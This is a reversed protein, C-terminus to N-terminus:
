QRMAGLRNRALDYVALTREVMRDLTYEALVRDRGARGIRRRADGDVLLRHAAAVIADVDGPPVVVGNEGPRDIVETIGGVASAVVPVGCAMAQPLVLPAAEERETPFLFVDAAAMYAAVREVAQRGVFDVRDSTGLKAALGELATREEGDGVVVLRADGDRVRALAEVAHHFGKERNLRGVALLLPGEALGLEARVEVAPRPRFLDVDVGNPVVHLRKPDLFFSRRTGDLQQRSPVMAECLRFRIVADPPVFHHGSIWVLHKAETLREAGTNARRLRALAASALGLYNGHFKVAVPTRRHIGGRLLGLASTSESHVVDFRHRAELRAFAARSARLWAHHRMPTRHYRTRVPLFHWRAGAFEESEVGEPHRATLVEVEHGLRALGRVLDVTHAQMGGFGHVYGAVTVICVRV